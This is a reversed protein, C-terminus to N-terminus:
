YNVILNDIGQNIILHRKWLQDVNYSFNSCIHSAVLISNCTMLYCESKTKNMTPMFHVFSFFTVVHSIIIGVQVDGLLKKGGKSKGM